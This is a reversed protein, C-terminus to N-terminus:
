KRGPRRVKAKKHTVSYGAIACLLLTCAGRLLGDQLPKQLAAGDTQQASDPFLLGLAFLLVCFLLGAALGACLGGVRSKARRCAAACMVSASVAGPILALCAAVSAYAAPDDTAMCLAAALLMTCLTVLVGTVASRIATVVFPSPLSTKTKPM